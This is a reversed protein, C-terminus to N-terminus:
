SYTPAKNDQMHARSGFTHAYSYVIEAGFFYIQSTYYIWLLILVLAGAPGFAGAVNAYAFYLGLLYKGIAVGISAVVAGLWVDGWSAHAKPIQKYSIAFVASLFLVSIVISVLPWGAFGSTHKELWQLWFDIALWGLTIVGFVLVAVFAFVRTVILSKFFPTNKDAPIGWISNITDTLQMFLGSASFFTVVLSLLTAITTAGPKFTNQVLTEILARGEKGVASGIQTMLARRAEEEGFFFSAGAIALVLVPALSLVAYFSFAAALRPVADEGWNEMVKSGLEKFSASSLTFGSARTAM